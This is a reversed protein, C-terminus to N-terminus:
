KEWRMFTRYHDPSYYISGDSGTVIREGGPKPNDAGPVTGWKRYTIGQDNGDVLPLREGGKRGDNKFTLPGPSGKVGSQAIVGDKQISRMVEISEDPIGKLDKAGKAIKGLKGVSGIGPLASMAIYPADDESIAPKGELTNAWM